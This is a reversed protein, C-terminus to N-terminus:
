GNNIDEIYADMYRHAQVVTLDASLTRVITRYGDEEQRIIWWNGTNHDQQLDYHMSTRRKLTIIICTRLFKTLFYKITPM